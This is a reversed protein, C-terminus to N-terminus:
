PTGTILMAEICASLMEPDYGVRNICDQVSQPAAHAISSNCPGWNSLIALLDNFGVSGDGNIDEDCPGAGPCPGWAALLQVLDTFDVNQDGNIDADCDGNHEYAGMDVVSAQIRTGLDLDPTVESTDSDDDVDHVDVFPSILPNDGEDIVPSGGTLRYWGAAFQPDVDIVDGTGPTDDCLLSDPTGDIDACGGELDTYRVELQGNDAQIQNAAQPSSVTNGWLITNDVSVSQDAHTDMWVGGGGSSAWNDAVTCNVMELGSKFAAVGGGVFDSANQAILCNLLLVDEDNRSGSGATAAVGGGVVAATNEMVESSILTLASEFAVIAGGWDGASNSTFRSALVISYASETFLAAGDGDTTNATADIQRLTPECAASGGRVAVGGGAETAHCERIICDRVEGSTDLGSSDNDILIGGGRKQAFSSGNAYGRKSRSTASFSTWM